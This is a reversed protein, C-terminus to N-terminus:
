GMHRANDFVCVRRTSQFLMVKDARNAQRKHMYATAFTNDNVNM